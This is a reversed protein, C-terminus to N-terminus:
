WTGITQTGHQQFTATMTTPAGTGGPSDPSWTKLFCEGSFKAKGATSTNPGYEYSQSAGTSLNYVAAIHTFLDDHFLFDVTFEAGGKLGLMSTKHSSGDATNTDHTDQVVPISCRTIYQSLDVLTGAANDLKFVLKNGSVAGQM